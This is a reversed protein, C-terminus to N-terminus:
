KYSGKWIGALVKGFVKGLGGWIMGWVEGFGGLITGPALRNFLFRYLPDALGGKQYRQPARPGAHSWNPVLLTSLLMCFGIFFCALVHTLIIIGHQNSKPVM